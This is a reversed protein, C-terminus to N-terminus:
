MGQLLDSCRAKGRSWDGHAVVARGCARPWLVGRGRGQASCHTREQMCPAAPHQWLAGPGWSRGWLAGRVRDVVAPDVATSGSPQANTALAALVMARLTPRRLVAAASPLPRAAAPKFTVSSPLRRSTAAALM